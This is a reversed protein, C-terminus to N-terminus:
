ALAKARAEKIGDKRRGWRADVDELLKLKESPACLTKWIAQLEKLEMKDLSAAYMKKIVALTESEEYTAKTYFLHIDHAAAWPICHPTQKYQKPKGKQEEELYIIYVPNFSRPLESIGGLKKAYLHLM